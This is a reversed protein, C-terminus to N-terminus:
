KYGGILYFAGLVFVYVIGMSTRKANQIMQKNSSSNLDDGSVNQLSGVTIGILILFTTWWLLTFIASVSYGSGSYAM